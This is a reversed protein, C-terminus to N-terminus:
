IYITNGSSVIRHAYSRQYKILVFGIYVSQYTQIAPIILLHAGLPQLNARNIRVSYKPMSNGHCGCGDGTKQFRWYSIYDCRSLLVLVCLSDTHDM